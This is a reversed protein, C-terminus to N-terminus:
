HIMKRFWPMSITDALAGSCRRSGRRSRARRAGASTWCPLPCGIRPAEAFRRRAGDAMLADIALTNDRMKGYRISRSGCSNNAAMGGITARSATSVDVPFWLGHPKLQRNLEDLVLGPEVVARRNGPDLSVIGNLHKSFDIVLGRNVTQGAQSTGGGRATVPVGEERAMALGAEVDAFRKPVLVAQPLIQYFSADTAYRGRDFASALIEGETERRLRETLTTDVKERHM